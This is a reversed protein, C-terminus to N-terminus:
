SEQPSQPATRLPDATGIGDPSLEVESRVRELRIEDVIVALTAAVPIALLAGPAGLLESGVLLAILIVLPHLEVANGMVKPTIVNNEVQSWALSFVAAAVGIAPSVAFGLLISPIASLFPGIGPVFEALAWVLGLLVAYPVGILQLGLWAGGGIILCLVGQGIAWHGLRAGMENAMRSVRPRRGAPWFVVLYDRMRPADVTLYLAMFVTFLVTLFGGLLSTAFGVFTLMGSLAAPLGGLAMQMNLAIWTDLDVDHVGPYAAVVSALWTKFAEAYQPLDELLMAIERVVARVVVFGFTVAILAAVLYTLLVVVGRPPQWRSRRMRESAVISNVIPTMAAAIISAVFLQMLVGILEHLILAAIFIVLLFLGGRYLARSIGLENV